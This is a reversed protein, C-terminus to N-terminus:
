AAKFALAEIRRKKKLCGKKWTEPVNDADSKALRM